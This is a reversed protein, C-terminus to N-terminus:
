RRIRRLRYALGVSVGGAVTLPGWVSPGSFVLVTALTVVLMVEGLGMIGGEGRVPGGGAGGPATVPDYRPTTRISGVLTTLTGLFTVVVTVQDPTWHLVGLSVCFVVGSRGLDTLVMVPFPKTLFGKAVALIAIFLAVLNTQQDGSLSFLGLAIAVVVFSEFADLLLAPERVLAKFRDVTV